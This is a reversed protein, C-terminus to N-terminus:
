DNLAGPPLGLQECVANALTATLPSRATGPPLAAARSPKTLHAFAPVASSLFRDFSAEDSQCLAMAWERMAPTIFGRRLADAVKGSARGESMTALALNRERLMEAVAEAPVYKAPDPKAEALKKLAEELAAILEEPPTEPPLKLLKALQAAIGPESSPDPAM